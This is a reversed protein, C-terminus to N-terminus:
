GPLYADNEAYYIVANCKDQATAGRGGRGKGWDQLVEKALFVELLYSMGTAADPLGGSGPELCAVAASTASWNPNREAYITLNDDLSDLRELLDALTM